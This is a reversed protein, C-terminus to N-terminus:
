GGLANKLAQLYAHGFELDPELHCGEAWENWANIFFIQEDGGFRNGTEEVIKRTWEEFKQPTSDRYITAGVDRRASNDWGPAVCRFYTYPKAPRSLIQDAMDPYSYVRNLCYASNKIGLNHLTRTVVHSLRNRHTFKPGSCTLDPAFEMSADCGHGAPDQNRLFNEVRVLYLGELGEKRAEEQWMAAARAFDPHLETRYVLFVPKGMIRIYRKDKFFPLLYRIHRRDDDDDYHQEMLVEKDLGDWCRTWNENAWCLCFPFDPKGTELMTELPRELLRVGNFWYHYYCFGHIGYQDALEAQAEMVSHLRLDYFGLDSPIHPQYHGPFRPRARAVKRWETFGKGWWQDNEPIPHFQPLYLAIPKISSM